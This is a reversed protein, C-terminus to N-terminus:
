IDSSLGARGSGVADAMGTLRAIGRGQLANFYQLLSTLQATSFGIPDFRVSCGLNLWYKIYEIRILVDVGNYAIIVIPPVGQGRIYWPDMWVDDPDQIALDARYTNDTGDKGTAAMGGGNSLALWARCDAVDQRGWAETILPLGHTNVIRNALAVVPLSASNRTCEACADLAVVCQLDIALQIAEDLAANTVAQDYKPSGMYLEIPELDAARAVFSDYVQTVHTAGGTALAIFQKQDYPQCYIIDGADPHTDAVTGIRYKGALTTGGFVSTVMINRYGIAICNDLADDGTGPNSYGNTLFNEFEGQWQNAPIGCNGSSGGTGDWTSLLLGLTQGATRPLWSIGPAPSGVFPVGYDPLGYTPMGYTPLALKTTM